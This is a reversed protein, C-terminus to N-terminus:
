ISQNDLTDLKCDQPIMVCFHAGSGAQSLLTVTGHHVEAIRKVSALGIGSHNGSDLTVGMEFLRNQLIPAVGNGDDRVHFKLTKAAEDREVWMDTKQKRFRKANHLLEELAMILLKSCCRLRWEKPPLDLAVSTDAKAATELLSRATVLEVKELGRISDLRIFRHIERLYDLTRPLLASQPREEIEQRVNAMAIDVWTRIGHALTRNFELLFHKRYENERATVDTFIGVLGALKGESSFLPFKTTEIEIALGKADVQKERVPGYPKRTAFVMTDGKKFTEALHPQHAWIQSDTKDKFDLIGLREHWKEFARNWERIRGQCDKFFVCEPILDFMARMTNQANRLDTVDKSMGFIGIVVGNEDTLPLKSTLVHVVRGDHQWIEVESKQLVPENTRMVTEEDIRAATAHDQDFFDEDSKGLFDEATQLGHASITAKNVWTFHSRRDKTYIRIPVDNLAKYISSYSPFGNPPELPPNPM